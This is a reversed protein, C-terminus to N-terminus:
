ACPIVAEVTTPGGRPSDVTLVGGRAQVRSAIGSLGPGDPDAGGRGEDRVTLVLARGTFALDIDIRPAGSHKLANTVAESAVFYAAAEAARDTLRPIDARLRIPIETRERLAALAASLGDRILMAPYTRWAVARLDDLIRQTEERARRHLERRDAAEAAREARALLISLAVVRQQVGDPNDRAIRRREADVAAVVDDLTGHLRSLERALEGAGPRAFRAWARRDLWAIGALGSVALFLLLVGPLAYGAVVPWTVAGPAAAFIPVAAGTAAGFLMEVAVVIGLALLVLVACAIVGLVTQVLLLLILREGPPPVSRDNGDVRTLRRASWAAITRAPATSLPAALIAFLLAPVLLAGLVLSGSAAAARRVFRGDHRRIPRAASSM